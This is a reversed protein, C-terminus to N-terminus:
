CPTQPRKPGWPLTARQTGGRSDAPARPWCPTNGWRRGKREAKRWAWSIPVGICGVTPSDFGFYIERSSLPVIQIRPVRGNPAVAPHILPAGM